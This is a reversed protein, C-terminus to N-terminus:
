HRAPIQRSWSSTPTLSLSPCSCHKLSQSPSHPWGPSFSAIQSLCHKVSTSCFHSTLYQLVSRYDGYGLPQSLFSVTVQPLGPYCVDLELRIQTVCLSMTEFFWLSLHIYKIYCESKRIYVPWTCAHTHICVTYVFNYFFLCFELFLCSWCYETNSSEKM